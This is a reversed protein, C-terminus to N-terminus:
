YLIGMVLCLGFLFGVYVQLPNHKKLYLRCSALMGSLALAVIFINRIDSGYKMGLIFLIGCVAGIATMHMSMKWRLTIISFASLLIILVLYLQRVINTYPILGICWFGIFACVVAVLIPYVREQRIELGYDSVLHFHKFVPLSLLPMILLVVATVAYSYFRVPAPILTFLTDGNFIFFLAYLPMLLPHLVYSMVQAFYKM